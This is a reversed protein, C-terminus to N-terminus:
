AGGFFVSCYNKVDAWRSCQTKSTNVNTFVMSCYIRNTFFYFLSTMSQGMNLMFFLLLGLCQFFFESHTTVLVYMSFWLKCLLFM